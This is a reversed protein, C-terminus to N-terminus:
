RAILLNPLAKQLVVAGAESVPTGSLELTLLNKRGALEKLGAETV